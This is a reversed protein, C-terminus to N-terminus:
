KILDLNDDLVIPKALQIEVSYRLDEIKPPPYLLFIKKNLHQALGIEM